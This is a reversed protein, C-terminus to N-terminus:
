SDHLYLRRDDSLFKREFFYPIVLRLPRALTVNLKLVLPYRPCKQDNTSGLVNELSQKTVSFWFLMAFAAIKKSKESFYLVLEECNSTKILAKVNDCKFPTELRNKKEQIVNVLLVTKHRGDCESM